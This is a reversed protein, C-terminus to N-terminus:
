IRKASHEDELAGDPRSRRKASRTFYRMRPAECPEARIRKITQENESSDDSRLRRKSKTSSSPELKSKTCSLSNTSSNQSLNNEFLNPIINQEQEKFDLDASNLGKDDHADSELFKLSSYEELSKSKSSKNDKQAESKSELTPAGKIPSGRPKRDPQVNSTGQPGASCNRLRLDLTGGGISEDVKIISTRTTCGLEPSYFKFQKDTTTSYGMFVGVRGHDVLKDKRQGQPIMKPNIYFYCKSGWVKIHDISPAKDTWAEQPSTISGSILPGTATLNRTYADAEVAEHWFGIPLAAEKFISRMDTEATRISRETTGNQHSSAKATSHGQIGDREKWGEVTLLLETANDSHAAKIKEEVENEVVAKFTWLSKPADSKQRLLLIWNMRTFSGVILLFYRNGRLTKPLPGANDFQILALRQTKHDAFEKPIKNTMKTLQCVEFIEWLKPIKIAERLTTVKHLNRTKEPGLHAFRLIRMDPSAVGLKRRFDKLKDWAVTISPYDDFDFTQIATLNDNAAVLSSKAYKKHLRRWMQKTSQHEDVLAEDDENQRRMM